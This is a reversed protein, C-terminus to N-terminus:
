NLVSASCTVFSTQMAFHILQNCWSSYVVRGGGACTGTEGASCMMLCCVVIFMARCLDIDHQGQQVNVIRAGVIDHCTSTVDIDWMCTMYRKYSYEAEWYARGSMVACHLLRTGLSCGWSKPVLSHHEDAM